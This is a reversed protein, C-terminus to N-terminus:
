APLLDRMELLQIVLVAAFPQLDDSHRQIVPAFLVHRGESLLVLNVIGQGRGPSLLRSLSVSADPPNGGSEQDVLLPPDGLFVDAVLAFLHEFLLNLRQESFSRNYLVSEM